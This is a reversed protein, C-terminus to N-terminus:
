RAPRSRIATILVSLLFFTWVRQVVVLAKAKPSRPLQEGITTGSAIYLTNLFSYREARSTLEAERRLRERTKVILAWNIADFEKKYKESADTVPAQIIGGTAGFPGTEQRPVDQVNTHLEISNAFRSSAMGSIAVTNSAGTPASSMEPPSATYVFSVITRTERLVKAQLAALKEVEATGARHEDTNKVIRIEKLTKEIDQVEQPTPIGFDKGLYFYWSSFFLLSIIYLMVVTLVDWGVRDDPLAPVFLFWMAEAIAIAFLGCVSYFWLTTAWVPPKDLTWWLSYGAALLFSVVFTARRAFREWPRARDIWRAVRPRITALAVM